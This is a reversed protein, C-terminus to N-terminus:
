ASSITEYNSPSFRVCTIESGGKVEFVNVEHDFGKERFYIWRDEHYRYGLSCFNEHWHFALGRNRSAKAYM